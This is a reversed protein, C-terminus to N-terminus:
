KETPSSVYRGFDHGMTYYLFKNKHWSDDDKQLFAIM